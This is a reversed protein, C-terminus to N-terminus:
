NSGYFLKKIFKKIKSEEEKKEAVRLGFELDFWAFTSEAKKKNCKFVKKLLPICYAKFEEHQEPTMTFNTYWNEDKLADDWTKGVMNLQYKLMHEAVNERTVKEEVM